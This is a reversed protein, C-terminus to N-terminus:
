YDGSNVTGGEGWFSRLLIYLNREQERDNQVEIHGETTDLTFLRERAM